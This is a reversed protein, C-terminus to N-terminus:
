SLLRLYLLNFNTYWWGKTVPIFPYTIVMPSRSTASISSKIVIVIMVGSWAISQAVRRMKNVITDVAIISKDSCWDSILRALSKFVDVEDRKLNCIESSSAIVAMIRVNGESPASGLIDGVMRINIKVM